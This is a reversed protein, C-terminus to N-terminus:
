RTEKPATQPYRYTLNEESIHYGLQGLFTQLHETFDDDPALYAVAITPDDIRLEWHDGRWYADIDFHPNRKRTRRKRMAM